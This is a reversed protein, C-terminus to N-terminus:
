VVLTVATSQAMTWDIEGGVIEERAVEEIDVEEGRGSFLAFSTSM